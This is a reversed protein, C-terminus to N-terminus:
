AAPAPAPAPAPPAEAPPAPANEVAPAPAPAAQAPAAVGCGATGCGVTGCGGCSTAPACCPECSGCSPAATTCCPAPACCTQHSRACHNRQHQVGCHNHTRCKAPRCCNNRGAEATNALLMAALAFLIGLHRMMKDETFGSSAACKLARGRGCIGGFCADLNRYSRWVGRCGIKGSPFRDFLRGM